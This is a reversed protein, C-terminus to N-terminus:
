FFDDPKKRLMMDQRISNKLFCLFIVIFFPMHLHYAMIVEYAMKNQPVNVSYGWSIIIM